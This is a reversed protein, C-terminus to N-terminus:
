FPVSYSRCSIMEIQFTLSGVLSRKKKDKNLPPFYNRYFYKTQQLLSNIHINNCIIVSSMILEGDILEGGQYRM